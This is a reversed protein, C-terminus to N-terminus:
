QLSSPWRTERQWLSCAACMSVMTHSGVVLYCASLARTHGASSRCCGRPTQVRRWRSRRRRWGLQACALAVILPERGPLSSLHSKTPDTIQAPPADGGEERASAFFCVQVTPHATHLWIMRRRPLHRGVKVQMTGDSLMWQVCAPTVRGRLIIQHSESKTPSGIDPKDPLASPPDRCSSLVSGQGRVHTRPPGGARAPRSARITTWRSQSPTALPM